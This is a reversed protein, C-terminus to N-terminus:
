EGLSNFQRKRSDFAKKWYAVARHVDGHQELLGAYHAANDALDERNNLRELMAMGAEFCADGAKYHKQAYEIKGSILQADAAISSDTGTSLLARAQQAAERAPVRLVKTPGLTVNKLVTMHPFLNFSQFVIGIHRRVLNENVGPATIEQGSLWISGASVPELLNVCRLLTSKGSGSAGILCIVEHAAVSLDIGRLVEKPGFSKHVGRVELTVGSGELVPVGLDRLRRALREGEGSDHDHNGLVAVAPRGLDGLEACLAEIEAPRGANTLDGALLLLDADGALRALASRLRGRTEPVVHPDGLAAVRVLRDAM